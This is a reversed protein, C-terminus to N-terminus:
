GGEGAPLANAVGGVKGHAMEYEKLATTDKFRYLPEWTPRAYGTWKVHVRYGRGQKKSGLIREVEWEEHGDETLIAPPQTDDSVQSPFPNNGARKLLSVHFVNHIGPPTDLRCAHSGVLETVTYKANLWDLKKSPRDTKVNKLRLWVKDGAKFQDAPKRVLNAHWEQQEQATAIAAQAWESAERLRAVFAEGREVPTLGSQRLPEETRIPDVHYGHTAFFPSLGTSTATRNNIALMAVPLLEKWNDQAYSVFARLYDEVVQNMRETAGDTEPHFATSLRRKIELLECIRKWM